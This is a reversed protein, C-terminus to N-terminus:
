VRLTSKLAVLLEVRIQIVAEIGRGGVVRLLLLVPVVLPLIAAGPVLTRRSPCRNGVYPLLLARSNIHILQWRSAVLLCPLAPRALWRYHAAFSRAVDGAKLREVDRHVSFRNGLLLPEVM